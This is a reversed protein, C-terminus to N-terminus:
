TRTSTSASRATYAIFERCESEFGAPLDEAVGGVQAYRGHM